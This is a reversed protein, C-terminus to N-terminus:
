LVAELISTVVNIPLAQLLVLTERAETQWLLHVGGKLSTTRTFTEWGVVVVVVERSM